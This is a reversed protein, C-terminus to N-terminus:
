RSRGPRAASPCRPSGRGSGCPRASASATAPSSAAGAAPEPLGPRSMRYAEPRPQATAQTPWNHTEDTADRCWRYFADYLAMGAELQELDDAICARCASRPPSCGPRKRRSISGRRHRRRARDTALRLLPETALGFEEVMVDFTCRRAATAGSCTEGRHRVADRRLARRRGAGRGARRVPVRRESRRLPPDALPLRHPRGEAALAHGLRHPGQADRPPLKALPCWRCAPRRGAWRLRRRAVDAPVGAHRLWAAVGQSLKPGKQCISSPPAAPSNRAGMRRGRPPLAAGRGPILRPDAAFDEDTRVDILSPCNPRGILRALKDALYRQAVVHSRGRQSLLVRHKPM